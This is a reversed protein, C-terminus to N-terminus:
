QNQVELRGSVSVFDASHDSIEQHPRVGTVIWTGTDTGSSVSHPAATGRQWNVAVQDIGSGQRQFRVDFYTQDTLNTGSFTATWFSGVAIISPNFQVTTVLPPDTANAVRRVRNNLTDAIFLNGAADVTIGLPRNIQASAASGGDGSFGSIGNGAVISIVGGPTVKTVSDKDWSLGVVYVNGAADVAIDQPGFGEEDADANGKAITSILGGATVKRVRFNGLDAIYLNGATDVAVGSPSALEASIAPGGDGSFGYTGTGAITSIMGDVTIKRIRQNYSDAIYLNGAADVAVGTPSGLLASTAPGGDGGFGFRTSGAITSIVGDATVKRINHNGEAIYLNGAADVAISRPYFLLASTALGGDGLHTPVNIGRGAVTSIVGDATVKRIRSNTSDTIYLNGAADVAVDTPSLLRASTAPGGDGVFGIGVGAVTSIVGGATVRSVRSNNTDAIYVNGTADVAVGSPFRFQAFFIVQDGVDFRVLGGDITSIVGDPTVKRISSDYADAIYLNGAADLALGLAGNIQASTAPGGDGGGRITRGDGVVTSIVGNVTVKRIRHNATDSIYLNGAADVAVASPIGIQASAAPGGDGSFGITGNGAVITMVGDATVKRVRGNWTDAIYLNGTADVAVSQPNALPTDGITSIVGAANVKRVRGNWTDAIYLNGAADLAIGSPRNLRASTAPGGDGSFGASSNGAILTLAGDATVRYVRNQIASSVYFGGAGDLVVGSPQDIPHTIAQASSEPVASGAHTTIISSQAPSSVAFSVVFVILLSLGFVYRGSRTSIEM